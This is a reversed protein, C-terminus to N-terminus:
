VLIYIVEEIHLIEKQFKIYFIIIVVFCQIYIKLVIGITTKLIHDCKCYAALIRLYKNCFHTGVLQLSAIKRVIEGLIDALHPEISFDKLSM